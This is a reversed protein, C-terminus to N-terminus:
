FFYAMQSDTLPTHFKLGVRYASTIKGRSKFKFQQYYVMDAKQSAVLEHDMLTTINFSFGSEFYKLNKESIVLSLGTASIDIVQFKLAQTASALLESAVQITVFKGESPKFKQRPNARLELTKVESPLNFTVTNDVFNIISIKFVTDRYNLKCYTQTLSNFFPFMKRSLTAGFSMFRENVQIDEINFIYRKGSTNQWLFSDKLNKSNALLKSIERFNQTTRYNNLMLYNDM